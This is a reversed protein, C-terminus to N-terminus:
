PARRLRATIRLGVTDAVLDPFGDAGFDSRRIDGTLRVTLLSLDGEATGPQRFIEADLTIPRTVGRVTVDGTVRAGGSQPDFSRSQFTIRPHAATDLVDASKLAQTVFIVGTRAGDANLVVRATSNAARDFDLSLDAELIPMTGTGKSGELIYTFQVDSQETQLLYRDPGAALPGANLAFALAIAALPKFTM